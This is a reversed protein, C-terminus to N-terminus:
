QNTPLTSKKFCYSGIIVRAASMIVKHIKSLQKNTVQTYLPITYLLKGLILSKVFVKRTHFNTIHTLTNFPITTINKIM